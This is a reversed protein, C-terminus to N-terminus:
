HSSFYKLAWLIEDIITYILLLLSEPNSKNAIYEQIVTDRLRVRYVIVREGDSRGVVPKGTYEVRTITYKGPLDHLKRSILPIRLEGHRAPKHNLAIVTISGPENIYVDEVGLEGLSGANILQVLYGKVLVTLEELDGQIDPYTNLAQEINIGM